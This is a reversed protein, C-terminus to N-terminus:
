IADAVGATEALAPFVSPPLAVWTIITPLPKLVVNALLVTANLEPATPVTVAAVAVLSVTSNVVFPLGIAPGSVATTVVFPTFM